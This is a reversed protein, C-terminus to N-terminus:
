RRNRRPRLGRNDRTQRHNRVERRFEGHSFGVRNHWRRHRREAARPRRHQMEYHLDDHERVLRGFQRPREFRLWRLSVRDRHVRGPRRYYRDNWSYYGNGYSVSAGPNHGGIRLGVRVNQATAPTAWSIAYFLVAAGVLTTKM